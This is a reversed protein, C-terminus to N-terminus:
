QSSADPECHCANSCSDSSSPSSGEAEESVTQLLLPTLPISKIEEIADPSADFVEHILGEIDIVNNELLWEKFLIFHPKDMNFWNYPLSFCIMLDDRHHQLHNLIHQCEAINLAMMRRKLDTVEDFAGSVDM